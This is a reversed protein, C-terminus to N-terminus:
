RRDMCRDMWERIDRSSFHVTGVRLFSNNNNNNNNNHHGMTPWSRGSGYEICNTAPSSAEASVEMERSSVVEDEVESVADDDKVDSLSMLGCASSSFAVCSNVTLHFYDM